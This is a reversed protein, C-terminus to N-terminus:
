KDREKGEVIKLAEVLVARTIGQKGWAQEAEELTLYSSRRIVLDQKVIEAEVYSPKGIAVWVDKPLTVQRQPSVKLVRPM